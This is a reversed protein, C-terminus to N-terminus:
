RNQGAQRAQNAADISQQTQRQTQLSNQVAQQQANQIQQQQMMIQRQQNAMDLSRQQQELIQKQIEEQRLDREAQDGQLAAGRKATSPGSSDSKGKCATFGLLGLIFVIFVHGSSKFKM